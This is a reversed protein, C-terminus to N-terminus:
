RIIILISTPPFYHGMMVVYMSQTIYMILSHVFVVIIFASALSYFILLWYTLPLSPDCILFYLFLFLFVVSFTALNLHLTVWAPMSAFSAILLFFVVWALLSWFPAIKFLFLIVWILLSVLILIQLRDATFNRFGGELM